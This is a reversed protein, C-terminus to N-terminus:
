GAAAAEGAACVKCVTDWTRTTQVKGCHQEILRMFVPDNGTPVYASLLERGNLAILRASDLQIPLKPFRAPAEHLFTVVRKSGAPLKFRAFPDSDILERLHEISRVFTTFTKGLQAQMAAEAKRRLTAESARTAGFVVNGSSLLTKVHSFGASEFAKALEPMKLNMPSVGRLFAAHHQM